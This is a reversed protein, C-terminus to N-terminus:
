IRGKWEGFFRKLYGRMFRDRERALRKGERTHMRSKLLLLKEYFHNVTHSGSNRYSAFNRAHRPRVDPDYLPREKWGGYAFARAIGIAGLADLRDADQVVKGEISKMRDKVGAGKFSVNDVIRCVGAITKGDVGARELWARAAKGGTHVDGSFKWDAIDHLLAGLQVVFIDAENETRAIRVSTKWVRYVHWWDHGTAEGSMKKKVYGATLEVIRGKNVLAGSHYQSIMNIFDPETHMLDCLMGTKVELPASRRWPNLRGPLPPPDTPYSLFLDQGDIM